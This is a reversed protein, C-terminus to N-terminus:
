MTLYEGMGPHLTVDYLLTRFNGFSEDALMDWYTVVGLTQYYVTSDVESIVFLQSLATAMKQRLPDPCTVSNRWWNRIIIGNEIRDAQQNGYEPQVNQSTVWINSFWSSSSFTAQPVDSAAYVSAYAPVGAQPNTPTIAPTTNFQATIWDEL